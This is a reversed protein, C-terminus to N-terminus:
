ARLLRGLLRQERLNKIAVLGSAGAGIVCVTEGRDYVPTDDPWTPQTEGSWETSKWAVSM